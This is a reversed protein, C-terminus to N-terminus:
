QETIRVIDFGLVKVEEMYGVSEAIQLRASDENQEDHELMEVSLRIEVTAYFTKPM